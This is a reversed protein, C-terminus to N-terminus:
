CGLRGSIIMKEEEEGGGGGAAAAAPHHAPARASSSSTIDDVSRVKLKEQWCSRGHDDHCGSTPFLILPFSYDHKNVLSKAQQIIIIISFSLSSYFWLM